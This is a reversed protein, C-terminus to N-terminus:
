IIKDDNILLQVLYEYGNQVGQWSAHIAASKSEENGDDESITATITDEDVATLKETTSHAIMSIPSDKINSNKTNIAKVRM